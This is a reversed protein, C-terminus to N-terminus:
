RKARKRTRPELEYMLERRIPAVVTGNAAGLPDAIKRDMRIDQGLNKKTRSSKTRSYQRPNM